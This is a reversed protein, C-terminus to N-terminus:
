SRVGAEPGPRLVEGLGAYRGPGLRALPDVRVPDVAPVGRRVDGEVTDDLWVRHVRSVVLVQRDDPVLPVFRELRCGLAVRCGTVRPVPWDWPEATLGADVLESRDPPLDAGTRQVAELQGTRPVLITHDPRSGLNRVTDKVRGDRGRIVSFGVLPPDSALGTFYSFPALNWREGVGSDTLVWAIPRPIIIQALLRYVDPAAIRDLDHLM